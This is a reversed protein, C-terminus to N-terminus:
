YYLVLAAHRIQPGVTSTALNLCMQLWVATTGLESVTIAKAITQPYTASNVMTVQSSAVQTVTAGAAQPASNLTFGILNTGATATNTYVVVFTASAPTGLKTMDLHVAVQGYTAAAMIKWAADASTTNELATFHNIINMYVSKAGSGGSIGSTYSGDYILDTWVSSLCVTWRSDNTDTVFYLCNELAASAAPRSALTGTMLVSAMM